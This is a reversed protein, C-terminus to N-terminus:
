GLAGYKAMTTRGDSDAPLVQGVILRPDATLPMRVAGVMGGEVPTESWGFANTSVDGEREWLQEFDPLTRLTALLKQFWRQTTWRLTDERFQSVLVPALDTWLDGFHRRISGGDEFFMEVYHRGVHRDPIGFGQRFWENTRWLYWGFDM